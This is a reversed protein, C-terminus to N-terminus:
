SADLLSDVMVADLPGYWPQGLRASDRLRSERSPSEALILSEAVRAEGPCQATVGAPGHAAPDSATVNCSHMKMLHEAWAFMKVENADRTAAM